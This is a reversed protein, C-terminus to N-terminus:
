FGYVDKIVDVRKRSGLLFFRLLLDACNLASSHNLLLRLSPDQRQHFIKLLAIDSFANASSIELLNRVGLHKFKMTGLITWDAESCFITM